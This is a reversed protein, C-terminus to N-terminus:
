RDSDGSQYSENVRDEFERREKDKLRRKRRDGMIGAKRKRAPIVYPNHLKKSTRRKM